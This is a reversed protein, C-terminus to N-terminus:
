VMIFNSYGLPESLLIVFSHQKNHTNNVMYATKQNKLQNSVKAYIPIIM